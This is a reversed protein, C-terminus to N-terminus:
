GRGAGARPHARDYVEFIKGLSLHTYRQTTGLQSHGLLEQIVRLDAGADLLHTAFSHRLGHPGIKKGIGSEQLYRDLLRRVSRDTLRGGRQNVFLARKDVRYSGRQQLWGERIPLYREVSAVAREHLPVVRERRGKGFVRLARSEWDIDELDIGVLEGVRVGTAYLLELIASDRLGVGRKTDPAELLAYIEDVTLYHPM